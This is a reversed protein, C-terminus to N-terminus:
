CTKVNARPTEEAEGKDLGAKLYSHGRIFVRNTQKNTKPWVQPMWSELALFPVQVVAAVQAVTTVSSALDKVRQVM